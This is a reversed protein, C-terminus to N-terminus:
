VLMSEIDQTQQAITTQIPQFINDHNKFNKWFDQM